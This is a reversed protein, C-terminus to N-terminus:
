LATLIDESIDLSRIWLIIQFTFDMVFLDIENMNKLFFSDKLISFCFLQKKM